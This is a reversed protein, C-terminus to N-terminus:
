GDVRAVGSVKAFDVDPFVLAVGAVVGGEVRNLMVGFEGFEVVVELFEDIGLFDGEHL